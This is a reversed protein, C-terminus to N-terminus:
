TVPVPHHTTKLAQRSAHNAFHNDEPINVNGGLDNVSRSESVARPTKREQLIV